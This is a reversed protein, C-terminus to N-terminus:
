MMPRPVRLRWERKLLLLRFHCKTRGRGFLNVMRAESSLPMTPLANVCITYEPRPSDGTVHQLQTEPNVADFICFVLLEIVQEPKPDWNHGWPLVFPNPYEDVDWEIGLVHLEKCLATSMSNAYRQRFVDNPWNTIRRRLEGLTKGFVGCVHMKNYRHVQGRYAIRRLEKPDVAIDEMGAPLQSRLESVISAAAAAL